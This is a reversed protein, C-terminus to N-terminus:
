RTRRAPSRQLAGPDLEVDFPETLRMLQGPRAQEGLRYRGDVLRFLQLSLEPQPDALLYFPIGAEAYYRMKVVRDAAPSSPSIIECVLLVRPADVVLGDFGAFDLVVVDPIPIRGTTLRVNIAEHAEFGLELCAEDFANAIRRSIRQHAGTASPSVEIRGDFLEVREPTEGLSLYEEETVPLAHGYAATSM